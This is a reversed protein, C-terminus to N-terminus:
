DKKEDVVQIASGFAKLPRGNEDYQTLSSSGDAAREEFSKIMGSEYYGSESSTLFSSPPM